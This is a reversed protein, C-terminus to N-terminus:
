LPKREKGYTYNIIKSKSMDLNPVIIIANDELNLFRSRRIGIDLVTVKEGSPLKIEDDVRFPRDVMILFGAIINAITDQAALAIALSSIGLTAVLAGINIGLNSLILLIVIIWLFINTIKRFLPIFEDDLRSKTKSAVDIAYWKFIIGFVKQFWFAVTLISIVLFSKNFIGVSDPSFIFKFKLLYAYYLILIIIFFIFFVLSKKLLQLILGKHINNKM